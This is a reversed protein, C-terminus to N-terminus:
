PSITHGFVDKASAPRRVCIIKPEMHLAIGLVSISMVPGQRMGRALRGVVQSKICDKGSVVNLCDYISSLQNEMDITVHSSDLVTSRLNHRKM